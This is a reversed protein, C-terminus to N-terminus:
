ILKFKTETKESHNLATNPPNTYTIDTNPAANREFAGRPRRRGDRVSPLRGYKQDGAPHVWRSPLAKCYAVGFSAGDAHIALDASFDNAHIALDASFDNCSRGPNAIPMMDEYRVVDELFLFWCKTTDFKRMIRM